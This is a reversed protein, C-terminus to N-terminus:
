FGVSLMVGGFLENESGSYLGEESLSWSHAVYPSVTATETFAYDLSVSLQAHSLEGEEALYGLTGGFGLSVCDSLPLSKGLGLETYGNNDTEVDWFYTLSTDIGYFTQAAKFFMEGADDYALSNDPFHYHIYGVSLTAFEFEKAIEGYIDVEDYSQNSGPAQQISGYWIGASLGLGNYETAVDFGAETLDQGLDLGRFIYASSYGTHLEYEVEASATGAALATAAALAGITKYYNLM